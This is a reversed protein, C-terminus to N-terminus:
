DGFKKEVAARIENLSKGEKHLSYALEAEDKCSWCGVAQVVEYCSLLSRHGYSDCGCFCFLGDLVEPIERAHEYAQSVRKLVKQYREDSKELKRVEKEYAAATLVKEATIGPRPDPHKVTRRPVLTRLAGDFRAAGALVPLMLFQRRSFPISM